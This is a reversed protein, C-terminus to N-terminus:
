LAEHDPLTADQDLAVPRAQLDPHRLFRDVLGAPGGICSWDDDWLPDAFDKRIIAPSTSAPPHDPHLPAPVTRPTIM